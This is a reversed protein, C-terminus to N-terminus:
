SSGPQKKGEVAITLGSAGAEKIADMARVVAGHSTRKDAKLVVNRTASAELSTKLAPILADGEYREGRFYIVGEPTVEVTITEERAGADGKAKPLELDLGRERLFTTTVVLFIILLFAVDILATIDVRPEHRAPRAFLV